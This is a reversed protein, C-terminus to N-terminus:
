RGFPEDMLLIEPDNALARAIAVRQQMGGSLEYPYARSFKGMGILELYRRATEKQLNKPTQQFRLGLTINEEVTLWPMLSYQQFVMGIERQPHNQQKGKYLAEGSSATELGAIIRLLTSKGCGSPGVISIFDNRRVELLAPVTEGKETLFTKSLANIQILKEQEAM